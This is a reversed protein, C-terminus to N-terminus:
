VEILINVINLYEGRQQNSDLNYVKMVKLNQIRYSIFM